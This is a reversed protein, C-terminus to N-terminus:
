VTISCPLQSKQSAPKSIILAGYEGTAQLVFATDYGVVFHLLMLVFFMLVSCPLTRCIGFEEPKERHRQRKTERKRQRKEMVPVASLLQVGCEAIECM